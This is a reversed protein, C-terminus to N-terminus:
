VAVPAKIGPHSEYNLLEFDEFTFDFINKVSPNIKMQPLAFPTRTLQLEAQEFHNKYLHVDGFSHIFEGPELDCVQAIMMTFLAYSAINFPVGLFVDASRQYLQCSLRGKIGELPPSVTPSRFKTCSFLTNLAWEREKPSPQPPTNKRAHVVVGHVNGEFVASQTPGFM